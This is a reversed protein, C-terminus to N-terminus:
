KTGDEPPDSEIHARERPSLGTHDAPARYVALWVILWVFGLAGTAIFAAQWGWTLTIWPVVLPAIIAGINAGANFIGTALARERRPFWEAVTKIAAPFNGSEGLGLLFRVLAFGLVTRVLAHSMAAVSWICIALAYGIRTGVRDIVTGACLMGIAYAAQFADVIYSYQQESWGIVHGLTPALVALVGRDVYNITTAAFLLACIRWRYTGVAASVGESSLGGAVM